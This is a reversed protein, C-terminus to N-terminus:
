GIKGTSIVSMEEAIQSHKHHEYFSSQKKSSLDYMELCNFSWHLHLDLSTKSHRIRLHLRKLWLEWGNATFHGLPFPTLLAPLALYLPLRPRLPYSTPPFLTTVGRERGRM